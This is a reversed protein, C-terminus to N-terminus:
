VLKTCKKNNAYTLTKDDNTTVKRQLFFHFTKFFFHKILGKLVKIFPFEALILYIDPTIGFYILSM